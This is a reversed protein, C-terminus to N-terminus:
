STEYKLDCLNYRQKILYTRTWQISFTSFVLWHLIVSRRFIFVRILPTHSFCPWSILGKLLKRESNWLKTIVNILEQKTKVQISQFIQPWKTHKIFVHVCTHEHTYAQMHTYNSPLVCVTSITWSISRYNQKKNM